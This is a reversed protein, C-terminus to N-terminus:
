SLAIPCDELPNYDVLSVEAFGFRVLAEGINIGDFRTLHIKLPLSSSLIDARFNHFYFNKMFFDKYQLKDCNKKYKYKDLYCLVAQFPLRLLHPEIKRIASLHVVFTDGFDVSFVEIESDGNHPNTVSSSRVIARFWKKLTPPCVLVIEGVGPLIKMSRYTRVTSPTNILRMLEELEQDGVYGKSSIPTRVLNAFFNCSDIYATILITVIDGVKPLILSYMAEKFVMEKDTTFGDKPLLIHELKCNKGKFCTGDPKTFRCIRAEDRADYGAVAENINEATELIQMDDYLM